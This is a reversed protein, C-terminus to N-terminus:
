CFGGREGASKERVARRGPGETTAAALFRRQWSSVNFWQWSQRGRWASLEASATDEEYGGAAEDCSARM